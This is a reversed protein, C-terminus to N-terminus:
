RKPWDQHIPARLLISPPSRDSLSLHVFPWQSLLTLQVTFLRIYYAGGIISGGLRLHARISEPAFASIRSISWRINENSLVELTDHWIKLFAATNRFSPAIYLDYDWVAQPELSLDFRCRVEDEFYVERKIWIFGVFTGNKRTVLCISGDKLRAQLKEQPRPVDLSAIEPTSLMSTVMNSALRRPLPIPTDTALAVFHYHQIFVRTGLIRELIRNCLYLLGHSVGFRKLTSRLM